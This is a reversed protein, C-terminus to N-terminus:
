PMLKESIRLQEIIGQIATVVARAIEEGPYQVFQMPDALIKENIAKDSDSVAVMVGHDDMGRVQIDGPFHDQPFYEYLVQEIRHEIDIEANKERRPFSTVVRKWTRM